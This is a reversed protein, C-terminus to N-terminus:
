SLTREKAITVLGAERCRAALRGAATFTTESFDGARSESGM